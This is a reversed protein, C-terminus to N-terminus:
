NLFTQRPWTYGSFFACWNQCDFIRHKELKSISPIIVSDSCTVSMQNSENSEGCKEREGKGLVVGMFLTKQLRFIRDFLKLRVDPVIICISWMTM